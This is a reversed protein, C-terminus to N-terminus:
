KTGPVYSHERLGDEFLRREPGSDGESLSGVQPLRETQQAGTAIPAALLLLAIAAALWSVSIRGSRSGWDAIWWLRPPRSLDDYVDRTQGVGASM